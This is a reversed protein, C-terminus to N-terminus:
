FARLESEVPCESTRAVTGRRRGTPTGDDFPRSSNGPLRGVATLAPMLFGAIGPQKIVHRWSHTLVAMQLMPPEGTSPDVAGERKLDYIEALHMLDLRDDYGNPFIM